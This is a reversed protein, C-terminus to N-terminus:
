SYLVQTVLCWFAKAASLCFGQLSIIDQTIFQLYNRYNRSFTHTGCGINHEGAKTLFSISPDLLNLFHRSVLTGESSQNSSADVYCRPVPLWMSHVSKKQVWQRYYVLIGNIKLNFIVQTYGHCRFKVSTSDAEASYRPATIMQLM